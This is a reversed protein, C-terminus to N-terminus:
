GRDADPSGVPPYDLTDTISRRYDEAFDPFPLTQASAWERVQKEAAQQRELDLGGDRGLYVTSSPFAFGTGAQEV